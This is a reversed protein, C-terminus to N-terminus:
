GKCHKSKYDRVPSYGELIITKMIYGGDGIVRDDETDRGHMSSLVGKHM